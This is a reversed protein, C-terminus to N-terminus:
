TIIQQRTRMAFFISDTIIRRNANTVALSDSLHLLRQLSVVVSAHGGTAGLLARRLRMIQFTLFARIAENGEGVLKEAFSFQDTLPARSIREFEARKGEAEERLALDEAFLRARGPRGDAFLAAAESEKKSFAKSLWQVIGEESVEFFPIELVRSRITEFLRHPASTIFFIFTQAPPEELVKLLASQAEATLCHADDIVVGRARGAYAFLSLREKIARVTAISITGGEPAITFFDPHRGEVVTKCSECVGCGFASDGPPKECFFRAAVRFAATQKGVADPGSFLFVQARKKQFVASLYRVARENGCFPLSHSVTQM